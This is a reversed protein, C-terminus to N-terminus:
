NKGTGKKVLRGVHEKVPEKGYNVRVRTVTGGRGRQGHFLRRELLGRRLLQGLAEGEGGNAYLSSKPIRVDTSIDVLSRWGSMDPHLQRVMYDQIFEKALYSFLEREKQTAFDFEGVVGMGTVQVKGDESLKLLHWSSDSSQGVMKRVRIVQEIIENRELTRFEVVGDCLSEFETRPADSWDLRLVGALVLLQRAKCWPIWAHKLYHGLEAPNNHKSLYSGDEVIYMWRKENEEIGKQLQHRALDWWEKLDIASTQRWSDSSYSPKEPTVVSLSSYDDIIRLHGLREYKAADTGLKGLWARFDDPTRRTINYEVRIGQALARSAIALSTEYWLSDSDFEINHITAYRFSGPALGDLIHVPVGAM